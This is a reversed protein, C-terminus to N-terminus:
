VHATILHQQLNDLCTRWGEEFNEFMVIATEGPYNSLGSHELTLFTAGGKEELKWSVVTEVGTGRVIWTYVLEYVPNATLVEGEIITQENTFTYKYGPEAKFDAKIFWASIEEEKSIADWVRSIPYNFQHTKVIKDNVPRM